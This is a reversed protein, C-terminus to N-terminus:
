IRPRMVPVGAEVERFVVRTEVMSVAMVVSIVSGVGDEAMTTSFRPGVIARWTM